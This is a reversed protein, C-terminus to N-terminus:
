GYVQVHAANLAKGLETKSLAVMLPSDVSSPRTVGLNTTGGYPWETFPYPPSSQPAPSWDKRRSPPATPDPPAEAHGWELAYYNILRTLFDQGLWSDWNKPYPPPATPDQPQPLAKTVLRLDSAHGYSTALSLSIASIGALLATRM